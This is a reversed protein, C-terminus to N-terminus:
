YFKFPCGKDVSDPKTKEMVVEKTLRMLQEGLAEDQSEKSGPEPTAPPCIYEGSKHTFTSVYLMSLAGEFQDKKFPALATSLGYGALPYPEHIDKTSMKTDVIGPHVANILINPHQAHLYKNLYRAYLLNALKSRGYHPNPGSDKNLEEVSAFRTNPPPSQHLNSSTNGIRVINGKSATSKLLPLLHSTLIVHGLQFADAGLEIIAM